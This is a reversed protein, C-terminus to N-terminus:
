LEKSTFNNLIKRSLNKKKKSKKLLDLFLYNGKTYDNARNSQKWTLLRIINTLIVFFSITTLPFEFSFSWRKKKWVCLFEFKM